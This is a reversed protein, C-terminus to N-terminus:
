VGRKDGFLHIHLRDTFRFGHEKCAEVLWRAKEKLVGGAVGQPMLYVKSPEIAYRQTLDLVEALDEEADVVFKFNSKASKSFYKLAEANETESCEMGANSLKPSVNYQNVLVDFEAKPTLTGNTETEFWYDSDIERLAEMLSVWGDQQLLPEGGTMIVNLCKYKHVEDVLAETSMRIIQEDRDYKQYSPDADRVHKYSTGKWNWTYDTDCWICHLNCLSSRVFVAPMGLSKGEGQISFFVEARGDNKAMQLQSM